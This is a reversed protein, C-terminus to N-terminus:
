KITTSQGVREQFDDCSENILISQTKTSGSEKPDTRLLIFTVEGNINKDNAGKHWPRFSKIDNINIVEEEIKANKEGKSNLIRKVKIFNAIGNGM